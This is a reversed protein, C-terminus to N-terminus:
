KRPTSKHLDAIAEEEDDAIVEIVRFTSKGLRIIMIRDSLLSSHDTKTDEKAQAGNIYLGGKQIIRNGEGVKTLEWSSFPPTKPPNSGYSSVIDLDKLLRAISRGFFANRGIKIFMKEDGQFARIVGEVNYGTEKPPYLATTQAICRHAVQVGHVLSVLEEALVRQAVRDEPKATHKALIQEIQPVPLLTFIRLHQAAQDDMTRLAYQTTLHTQPPSPPSVQYLDFPHTLEPSLFLANGASKGLKEGTPSLLLPVTLGFTNGPYMLM